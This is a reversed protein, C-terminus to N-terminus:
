ARAHADFQPSAVGYASLGNSKNAAARRRDLAERPKWAKDSPAHPSAIPPVLCKGVVKKGGKTARSQWAIRVFFWSIPRPVCLPVGQQIRRAPAPAQRGRLFREFTPRAILRLLRRGPPRDFERNM